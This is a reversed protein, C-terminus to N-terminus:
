PRLGRGRACEAVATWAAASLYIALGLAASAWVEAANKKSVDSFRFQRDPLTRFHSDKCPQARFPQHITVPSQNERVGRHSPHHWTCSLPDVIIVVSRVVIGSRALRRPKVSTHTNGLNGTQGAFDFSITTASAQGVAAALLAAGGVISAVKLSTTSYLYNRM